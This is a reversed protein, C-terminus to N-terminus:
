KLLEKLAEPTIDSFYPTFFEWAGNEKHRGFETCYEGAEIEVKHKELLEALEILFQKMNDTMNIGKPV